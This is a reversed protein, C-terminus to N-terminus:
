KVLPNSEADDQRGDHDNAENTLKKKYRWM